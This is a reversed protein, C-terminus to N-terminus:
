KVCNTAYPDATAKGSLIPQAAARLLTVSQRHNDSNAHTLFATMALSRSAPTCAARAQDLDNLLTQATEASLAHQQTLGGVLFTLDTLDITDAYRGFPIPLTSRTLFRQLDFSRIHTFTHTFSRNIDSRPYGDRLMRNLNGRGIISALPRKALLRLTKAPTKVDIRARRLERAYAIGARLQARLDDALLAAYAKRAASQLAEASADHKSKASLTRNRSIALLELVSAVQRTASAYGAARAALSSCTHRDLRTPCPYRARTGQPFAKPLAVDRYHLDPPDTAEQLMDEFPNGLAQQAILAICLAAGLGPIDASEACEIIADGGDQTAQVVDLLGWFQKLWFPVVYPGTPPPDLFSDSPQGSSALSGDLQHPTVVCQIVAGADNLSAIYQNGFAENENAPVTVGNAEVFVWDYEYPGTATAWRGPNCTLIFGFMGLGLCGPSTPLVDVLTCKPSIQLYPSDVVEPQPPGIKLSVEQGPILSGDDSKAWLRYYYTIYSALNNIPVSINVDNTGSLTGTPSQLPYFSPVAPASFEGYTFWYSVVHGHPNIVGTLTATDPWSTFAYGTTVTPVSAGTTVFSQDGGYSTGAGNTVIVLQFHYTTGPTLGALDASVPVTSAGSEVSQACPVTSGYVVPQGYEFYCSTVIVGNPNVSGTLTASSSSVSSAAGTTVTPGPSGSTTFSSPFEDTATGTANTAVLVVSYTTGSALGSLAASVAVPSTGGGVAQACPVSSTYPPSTGYEFKCSTVTAGDPWVTGNVTASSSLVNTADGDSVMPPDPTFQSTWTTGDWREALTLYAGSPGASTDEYWGVATCASGSTCSVDSFAGAGAPAPVSQVTWSTGDWSEALPTNDSTGVATCPLGSPDCSVNALGSRGPSPTPEITWTTGDWSEALTQPFYGGVTGVATCSAASECWVANLTPPGGSNNPPLAPTPQVRWSTGDWSEALTLQQGSATDDYEGVATCATTAPCSVGYLTGGSAGSPLPVTQMKWASGDWFDVLPLTTGSSRDTYSGVAMCANPSACQDYYLSSMFMDSSPPPPARIAWTSGDWTEAFPAPGAERIGPFYYGVALCASTTPCSVGGLTTFSGPTPMPEVGWSTGDWGEALAGVTSQTAARVNPFATGVAQCRTATACSVSSLEGVDCPGSCGIGQSRAYGTPGTPGLPPEDVPQTDPRGMLSFLGPDGGGTVPGQPGNGTGHVTAQRGNLRPASTLMGSLTEASASRGSLSGIPISGLAAVVSPPVVLLLSRAFRGKM